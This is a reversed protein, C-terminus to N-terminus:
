ASTRAARGGVVSTTAQSVIGDFPENSCRPIAASVLRRRRQLAAASRRARSRARRMANVVPTCRACVEPLEGFPPRRFHRWRALVLWSAFGRRRPARSRLPWGVVQVFKLAATQKRLDLPFTSANSKPIPGTSVERARDLRLGLRPAMAELASSRFDFQAPDPLLLPVRANGASAPGLGPVTDGIAAALWRRRCRFRGFGISSLGASSVWLVAEGPEICTTSAGGAASAADRLGALSSSSPLPLAARIAGPRVSRVVAALGRCGGSRRASATGSPERTGWLPEM